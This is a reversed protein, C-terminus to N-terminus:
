PVAEPPLEVTAAEEEGASQFLLDICSNVLDSIAVKAESLVNSLMWRLM